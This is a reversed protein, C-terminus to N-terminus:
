SSAVYMNRRGKNTHFTRYFNQVQHCPRGSKQHTGYGLLGVRRAGINHSFRGASYLMNINPVGHHLSQDYIGYKGIQHPDRRCNGARISFGIYKVQTPSGPPVGGPDPDTLWLYRDPDKGKRMFTNLPSFFHKSFLIKVCFKYSFNFKLSKGLCLGFWVVGLFGPRWCIM